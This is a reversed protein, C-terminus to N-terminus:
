NRKGLFGFHYPTIHAYNDQKSRNTEKKLPQLNELSWCIKFAKDKISKFHFWIRPIKHDIEWYKGYNEWNMKPIFQKELHEKLEQITYDILFKTSSTKKLNHKKLTRAILVTCQHSLKREISSAFYERFYKRNRKKIEPQSYYKQNYEKRQKKIEPKMRHKRKQEQNHRRVEPIANYKKRRIKKRLRNKPKRIWSIDAPYV